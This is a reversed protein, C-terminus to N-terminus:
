WCVPKAHINGKMGGGSSSVHLDPPPYRKIPYVVVSAIIVCLVSATYTFTAIAEGEM